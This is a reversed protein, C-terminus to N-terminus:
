EEQVDLLLNNVYELYEKLTHYYETVLDIDVRLVDDDNVQAVMTVHRKFENETSYEVRMLKRLKLYFRIMEHIKEDETLSRLQDCKLGPSKQISDLEGKEQYSNLLADIVYNFFSVMREIVSKIVDVTRTYKLSVFILHDIRKAEQLAEHLDESIEKLKRVKRFM